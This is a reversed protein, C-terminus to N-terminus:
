RAAGQARNTPKPPRERELMHVTEVLIRHEEVLIRASLTEETDDANVPVSAQMLIPGADLEPTVVHLTCGAVKVGAELAQRQANLGRFAPLLSPHINLIRDPYARFFTPGVVRMFGALVVWDVAHEGLVAVMRRAAAPTLRSAARGPDVTVAPVGAARARELAPASERDSIVVAVRSEIRGDRRADLLAQLNSGRGSVLVGLTM